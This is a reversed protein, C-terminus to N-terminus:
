ICKWAMKFFYDKIHKRKLFCLESAEPWVIFERFEIAILEMLPSTFVWQTYMGKFIYIKLLYLVIDSTEEQLCCSTRNGEDQYKRFILSQDNLVCNYVLKGIAGTVLTNICFFFRGRNSQLISVHFLLHSSLPSLLKLLVIYTITCTHECHARGDQEGSQGKVAKTLSHQPERTDLRWVTRLVNPCPACGLSLLRCRGVAAVRPHSSHSILDCKTNWNERRYFLNLLM